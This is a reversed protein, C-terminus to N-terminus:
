QLEGGVDPVSLSVNSTSDNLELKHIQKVQQHRSLTNSHIADLLIISAASDLQARLQRASNSQSRLPSIPVRNRNGVNIAIPLRASGRTVLFAQRSRTDVIRVWQFKSWHQQFRFLRIIDRTTLYATVEEVLSDPVPQYLQPNAFLFQAVDDEITDIGVQQFRSKQSENDHQSYRFRQHPPLWLTAFEHVLAHRAALLQRM